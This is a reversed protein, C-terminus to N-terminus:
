GVCLHPPKQYGQSHESLSCFLGSGRPLNVAAGINSINIAGNLDADGYWGCHGCKFSKNSRYSKGKVPHIHNCKHCMQSTYAPNVKVLKVGAQIAKYTLFERLQYFAWSNSRRRETKSRPQQNTRERIGTLDEIAISQNSTKAKNVITRSINHNLWSQYRRERGSLRQLIQRARRRTSRTGKSAKQQLSARVKFFDDRVQQIDKGSWKDGSSTVAIDRRGLDIGVVSDSKKLEPPEDKIQIHIHYSGDGHKCLTASTPKRGKLKGRQYNGVDMRIHERGGVLTLSAAWDKERFDFIRADYDASTPHFDKVPKNKLKATKRNASVRNIARITLNASLYFQNRVQTYILTQIRVNNVLKPDVTTNIFNCANAFASLTAEIKQSQEQTPQLKCVITLVQEM